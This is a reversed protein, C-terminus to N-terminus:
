LPTSVYQPSEAPVEIVFGDNDRPQQERSPGAGEVTLSDGRIKHYLHNVQTAAFKGCPVVANKTWAYAIVLAQWFTPNADYPVLASVSAFPMEKESLWSYIKTLDWLKVDIGLVEEFEHVAYSALAFVLMEKTWDGVAGSFAEAKRALWDTDNLRKEIHAILGVVGKSGYYAAIPGVVGAGGSLAISAVATGINAGAILYPAMTVGSLVGLEGGERVAQTAVYKVVNGLNGYLSDSNKAFREKYKNELTRKRGLEDNAREMPGATIRETSGATARDPEHTINKRRRLNSTDHGRDELWANLPTLEKSAETPGATAREIPGATARDPENEKRRLNRTDHDGNEIWITVPKLKEKVIIQEGDVELQGRLEGSMEILQHLKYAAWLKTAGEISKILLDTKDGSALQQSLLKGFLTGVGIWCGLFGVAAAGGILVKNKTTQQAETLADNFAVSLFAVLETSEKVAQAFVASNFTLINSLAQATTTDPIVTTSGQSSVLGFKTMLALLTMAKSNVSPDSPISVGQSDVSEQLSSRAPCNESEKTGYIEQDHGAAHGVARKEIPTGALKRALTEGGWRVTDKFGDPWNKVSLWGFMGSEGQPIAGSSKQNAMNLMSAAANASDFAVNDM